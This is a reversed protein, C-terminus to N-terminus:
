LLEGVFKNQKKFGTKTRFIKFKKKYAPKFDKNQCIFDNSTININIKENRCIGAPIKKDNDLRIKINSSSMWYLCKECKHKKLNLIKM